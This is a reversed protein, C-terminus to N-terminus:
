GEQEIAAALAEASDENLVRGTGDWRRACWTYRQRGEAHHVTWVQWEPHERELRAVAQRITDQVLVSYVASSPLAV